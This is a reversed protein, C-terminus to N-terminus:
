HHEVGGVLAVLSFVGSIDPVGGDFITLDFPHTGFSGYHPICSLLCGKGVYPTGVLIVLVCSFVTFPDLPM